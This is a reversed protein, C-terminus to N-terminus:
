WRYLQSVKAKGESFTVPVLLEKKGASERIVSSKDAEIRTAWEGDVSYWGDAKAEIKSGVAARYWLNAEPTNSTLVLNRRLEPSDKGHAIGDPTDEVLVEGIKYRFTPRDGNALRYGLFRYGNEKPAATPWARAPDSLRALGAGPALKVINDGMPPQFGEGRGVWHKSADIFDGQWIMAIRGENADFALNAREPYGVGIGRTGAGEIFARYIIAGKDAVLPIPSRGLGYPPNANNGDTLYLWVADIQKKSSGGLIDTLQSEKEPWSSPMRTGPRYAQPNVVYRAFWGRQLRRTMLSMDIAPIGTSKIGRFNHCQVCGFAQTGALHRGIAKIKKEPQDFEPDPYPEAPDAAAFLKTLHGVNGGGFKPMRTKMYPRDKAGDNFIHDLWAATLKAGAGDLHPPIRGEDGLDAYTTEFSSKRGEEVGGVGGRAHCAYCNFTTLTHAIKGKDSPPAPKTALSRIAAGLDKKQRDTLAFRPSKGQPSDALCGGEARLLELPEATFTSAIAKGDRGLQHCSACGMSAFLGRGKEALAPDVAFEPEKPKESPAAPPADALVLFPDIPQRPLGRSEIEVSLETEGGGDFYGVVIKHRGPALRLRGVSTQAPHINDNDAVPNGDIWVKAGDDSTLFIAYNADQPVQFAGEFRMAFGNKRSAEKLDFGASQGTTKPTLGEFDPLKDWSGEYCSFALSPKLEVQLDRLLYNAVSRAEKAELNLAPMRGSPRVKHPDRLFGALSDVTYKASLNGLPVSTALTPGDDRRGHCAVCGVEEYLTRGDRIARRDIPTDNVRGTTALFHVLSEVADKRADGDLGALVNPMTTGPKAAQPDALFARLAAVKARSGVADLIPAQKRNLLAVATDDARHCSTCNLDGLLVLGGRVPDSDPAAHFREFGAVIAHDPASDAPRATSPLLFISAMCALSALGRRTMDSM